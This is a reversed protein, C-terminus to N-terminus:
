GKSLEELFECFAILDQMLAQYCDPLMTVLERLRAPKLNLTYVNRIVHHLGRYEDLCARSTKQLISPRVTLFEASMQVLLDRHWQPGTPVSGDIERAIDELIREVATYFSHLNLAIGDYYDEDNREIAKALLRQARDVAEQVDALETRIRVALTAANPNM